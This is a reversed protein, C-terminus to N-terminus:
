GHGAERLPERYEPKILESFYERLEKRLAKQEDTYDIIM